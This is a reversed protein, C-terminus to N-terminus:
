GGSSGGNTEEPCIVEIFRAKLIGGTPTPGFAVFAIILIGGEAEKSATINLFVKVPSGPELHVNRVQLDLDWGTTGEGFTLYDLEADLPYFGTNNLLIESSVTSNVPVSLGPDLVDIELDYPNKVYLTYTIKEKPTFTSFLGASENQSRVIITVREVGGPIANLPATIVVYVAGKSASANDEKAELTINDRSLTVNWSEHIPSNSIDYTNNVEGTNEIFLTFNVSGGPLIDEETEQSFVHLDYHLPVLPQATFCLLLLVISFAGLAKRKIDLEALDNLPPPHHAGLLMILMGLFIWGPYLFIGVLFMGGLTAYSLYRSREGLLARAVHGGDLQGAPLLNLATIFLGVWGALATPHLGGDPRVFRYLLQFLFPFGIVVNPGHGATYVHEVPEALLFGIITVPIAVILGAIPGAIGIDFLVKKNPMPERMSIFAGMTGLFSVGPPLPIFFPLSANVGHYKSMFYHGLEHTGLILMLPLSFFLAGMAIYEPTTIATIMTKTFTGFPVGKYGMWLTSGTITTTIITLILLVINVRVSRPQIRPQHTVVVVYSDGQSRELGWSCVPCNVEGGVMQVPSNCSPCRALEFFRDLWARKVDPEQANEIRQVVEILQPTAALGRVQDIISHQPQDTRLAAIYGMARLKKRVEEFSEIIDETGEIHFAAATKDWEINTIQFSDEIIPKIENIKSM